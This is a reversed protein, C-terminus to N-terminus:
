EFNSILSTQAIKPFPTIDRFNDYADFSMCTIEFEFHPYM